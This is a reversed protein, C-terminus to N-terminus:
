FVAINGELFTKVLKDESTTYLSTQKERKKKKEFFGGFFCRSSCVCTDSSIPIKKEWIAQRDKKM